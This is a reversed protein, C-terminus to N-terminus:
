AEFTGWHDRYDQLVCAQCDPPLQEFKIRKGLSLKEYAPYEVHQGFGQPSFPHASMCLLQTWGSRIQTFRVIYRDVFKEGSDHCHVYKPTGTETYARRTRANM